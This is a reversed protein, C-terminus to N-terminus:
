LLLNLERKLRKSKSEDLRNLQKQLTTSFGYLLNKKAIMDITLAVDTQSCTTMPVTAKNATAKNATPEDLEDDAVIQDDTQSGTTMPVTPDNAITEEDADLLVNEFKHAYEEFRHDGQSGGKAKLHMTEFLRRNDTNKLDFLHKHSLCIEMITLTTHRRQQLEQEGAKITLVKMTTLIDSYTAKDQMFTSM